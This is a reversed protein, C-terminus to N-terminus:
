PNAGARPWGLHDEILDYARAVQRDWTLEGARRLAQESMRILAAGDRAVPAIREALAVAVGSEDLGDTRVILACHEDVVYRPGGLDLCVVPLGRSLAEVVVNGSSDHWSPFLLLDAADYLTQMQERPVKGLLRVDDSIGHADIRQRLWSELRGDGALTLEVAIGRQRLEHVCDVAYSVGKGGLLRGAYLLRLTQSAPRPWPARRAAAVAGVGLESVQLVKRRAVAPLAEQTERTKALVCSAQAMTRRVFPDFRSVHISLARVGYFLRERWPWSRYLRRPAGEGGGVPGLVLPTDLDGLFSPLRYSGWTLHHILDHSQRELISAVLARVRYQWRWYYLRSNLQRHPHWSVGPVEYYAFALGPRPQRQLEAEVHSEFYTHTVVTVDHRAALEIAWRWGVGPESGWLPSCAFASLLVRRRRPPLTEAAPTIM